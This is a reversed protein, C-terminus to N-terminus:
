FKLERVDDAQIDCEMLELKGDRYTLISVSTNKLVHCSPDIAGKSLKDLLASIAAGHSILIVDDKQQEAIQTVCREMRKQVHEWSEVNQYQEESFEIKRGKFDKPKGSATGYDREKLNEAIGIEPIGLVEGICRATELARTLPSSVIKCGSWGAKLLAEGCDKAQQYGVENLPIDELGQIRREKNWTTQGHRILCIKQDNM